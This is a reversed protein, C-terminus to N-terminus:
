TVRGWTTRIFVLHSAKPYVYLDVSKDKMALHSEVPNWSSAVLLSNDKLLYHQSIHIDVKLFFSILGKVYYVILESNIITKVFLCYFLILFVIFIKSPVMPVFRLPRPSLCKEATPDFASLLLFFSSKMFVLSSKHKLPSQWFLFVVASHSFALIFWM